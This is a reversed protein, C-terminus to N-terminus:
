ENEGVRFLVGKTKYYLFTLVGMGYIEKYKWREQWIRKLNNRRFQWVNKDRERPQGIFIYEFVRDALGENFNTADEIITHPIDGVPMKLYKLSLVTLVDAFKSYGYTYKQKAARFKEVDINKGDKVLFLAWDLLHRLTVREFMFHASVHWPLFLANFDATPYRGVEVTKEGVAIRKGSYFSWEAERELQQELEKTQKKPGRLDGLVRHNEVMVGNVISVTHRYYHDDIEIGAEVLARNSDEFKDGPYIDIDGCERHKPIPYYQGCSFGKMLIFPVGHGDLIKALKILATLHTQHNREIAQALGIAELLLPKDNKSLITIGPNKAQCIELGDLVIAGVGQEHALSLVDKWDVYTPLSFDVEWGMAIRVLKLLIDRSNPM